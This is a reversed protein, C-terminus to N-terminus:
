PVEGPLPLLPAIATAIHDLAHERQRNYVDRALKTAKDDGLLDLADGMADDLPDFHCHLLEHICAERQDEPAENLLASHMRVTARRRGFTLSNSAWASNSEPDGRDLRIDWDKLRLLSALARLYGLWFAHEADTM